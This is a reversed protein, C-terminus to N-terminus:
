IMIYDDNRLDLTILLNIRIIKAYNGVGLQWLTFVQTESCQQLNEMFTEMEMIESESIKLRGM